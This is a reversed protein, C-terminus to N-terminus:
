EVRPKLTIFFFFFFFSLTYVEEEEDEESEVEFDSDSDSDAGRKRKDGGSLLTTAIVEPRVATSRILCMYSLDLGSEPRSVPGTM